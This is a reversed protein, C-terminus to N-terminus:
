FAYLYPSLICTEHFFSIIFILVLLGSLGFTSLRLYFSIVQEKCGLIDIFCLLTRVLNWSSHVVFPGRAAMNKKVSRFWKQVRGLYTLIEHLYHWWSQECTKVIYMYLFSGWQRTGMNKWKDCSNEFEDSVDVNSIDQCVKIIILCFIHSRSHDCDKKSYLYLSISGGRAAMNKKYICVM